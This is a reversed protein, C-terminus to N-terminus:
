LSEAIEHRFARGRSEPEWGAERASRIGSELARLVRAEPPPGDEAGVKVTFDLILERTRGPHLSVSISIAKVGKGWVLWGHRYAWAYDSGDVVVLTNAAGRRGAKARLKGSIMRDAAMGASKKVRWQGLM